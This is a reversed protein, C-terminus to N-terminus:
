KNFYKGVLYCSMCCLMVIWYSPKNARIGNMSLTMSVIFYLSFVVLNDMNAGEPELLPGM